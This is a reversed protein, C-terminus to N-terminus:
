LVVASCCSCVVRLISVSHGGTRKFVSNWPGGWSVAADLLRVVEM